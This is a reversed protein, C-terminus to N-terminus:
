SSFDNFHVASNMEKLSSNCEKVKFIVWSVLRESQFKDFTFPQQVSDTGKQGQTPLALNHKLPQLNKSFNYVFKRFNLVDAVELVFKLKVFM